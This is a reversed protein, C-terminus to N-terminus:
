VSRGAILPGFEALVQEYVARKFPVILEILKEPAIWTWEDFEVDHAGGAPQVIDIEEDPGHFDLLFWKQKQGVYRGKLAVGVLDQPLDYYLWDSSEARVSVSTINTEEHLERLVATKPDEGADIGGQPMQWRLTAGIHEANDSRKGIWVRGEQNVVMAGVCPRYGTPARPPDESEVQSM